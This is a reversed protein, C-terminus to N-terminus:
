QGVGFAQEDMLYGLGAGGGAGAECLAVQDHGGCAPRGAGDIVQEFRELGRAAAGDLQLDHPAGVFAGDLYHEALVALWVLLCLWGRWRGSQKVGVAVHRPTCWCWPSGAGIQDGSVAPVARREGTRGGKARELENLRLVEGIRM